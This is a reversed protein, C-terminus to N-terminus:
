ELVKTNSQLHRQTVAKLGTTKATLRNAGKNKIRLQHQDLAHTRSIKVSVTNADKTTIHTSLTDDGETV